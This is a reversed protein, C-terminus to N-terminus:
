LRVINANTVNELVLTTKCNTAQNGQVDCIQVYYNSLQVRNEKSGMQGVPKLSEKVVKANGPIFQEYLMVKPTACGTFLVGALLVFSLRKM